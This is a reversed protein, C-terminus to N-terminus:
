RKMRRQIIQAVSFRRYICWLHIFQFTKILNWGDEAMVAQKCLITRLTLSSQRRPHQAMM